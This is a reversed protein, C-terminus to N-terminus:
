NRYMEEYYQKYAGSTIHNMWEENNLYWDITEEIGQEFTYSPSWGLCTTIKTNDIAYRWDHGSRDKIYRILNKDKGMVKLIHYVIEINTKENNGGINYVEGVVGKKLVALITSCHSTKRIAFDVSM